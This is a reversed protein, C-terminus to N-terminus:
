GAQLGLAALESATAPVTSATSNSREYAVTTPSPKPEAAM